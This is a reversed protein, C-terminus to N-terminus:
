KSEELAKIAKKMISANAEEDEDDEFADQNMMTALILKLERETFCIAKGAM